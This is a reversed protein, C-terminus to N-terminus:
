AENQVSLTVVFLAKVAGKLRLMGIVFEHISINNDESHSTGASDRGLELLM